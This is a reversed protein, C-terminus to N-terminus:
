IGHEKAELIFNTIKNSVRKNFFLSRIPLFLSGGFILSCASDRLSMASFSEHSSPSLVSKSPNTSKPCKALDDNGLPIM